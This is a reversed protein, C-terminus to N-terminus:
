RILQDLSQLLNDATQIVKSNAQYARQAVIMDTLQSALEVNSSELAGPSISGVGSQGAQKLNVIGSGNSQAYANGSAAALRNPDTFSALPIKYLRQTEGNNYSATIFGNADISIATLQGVPAGNQNVFSVNYGSDFQALGDTKGIQTAGPTGFPLGQTGFNFAVASPVSGNTWNVALSSTLSTSVNQLSGDGNFTITGTAIQGNVLSANAATIDTAPQAYIEVAWTNNQLKAFAINLTHSTGLGDFVTVPRSFQPPIAGSAM